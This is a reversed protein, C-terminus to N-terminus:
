TSQTTVAGGSGEVTREQKKVWGSIHRQGEVQDLVGIVIRSSSSRFEEVGLEQRRKEAAAVSEFRPGVQWILDCAAVPSRNSGVQLFTDSM